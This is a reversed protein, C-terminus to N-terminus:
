ILEVVFQPSITKKRKNEDPNGIYGWIEWDYMKRM